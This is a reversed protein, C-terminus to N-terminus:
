SPSHSAGIKDVILFALELAQHANLRPDCYTEYRNALTDDAIGQGGGICETVDEGTMEVHIGGLPIGEAAVIDTFASLEALIYDFPRTKYGSQSKITNGHM